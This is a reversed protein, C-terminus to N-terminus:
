RIDSPRVAGVTNTSKEELTTPETEYTIKELHNSFAEKGSDSIWNIFDVVTNGSDYTRKDDFMQNFVFCGIMIGILAIVGGVACIVKSLWPFRNALKVFQEETM